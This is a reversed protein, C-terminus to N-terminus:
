QGYKRKNLARYLARNSITFIRYDRKIRTVNSKKYFVVYMLIPIGIEFTVEVLFSNFTGDKLLSGFSSMLFLLAMLFTCFLIYFYKSLVGKIKCPTDLGKYVRCTEM